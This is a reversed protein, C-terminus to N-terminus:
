CGAARAPPRFRLRQLGSCRVQDTVCPADGIVRAIHTAGTSWDVFISDGPLLVAEPGPLLTEIVPASGPVAARQVTAEGSLMTWGLAGTAIYHVAAGSHTHPAITFAPSWTFRSISLVRGEPFM